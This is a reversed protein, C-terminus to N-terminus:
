HSIWLVNKWFKEIQTSGLKNFPLIIQAGRDICSLKPMQFKTSEWSHLHKIEVKRLIYQKRFKRVSVSEHESLVRPVKLSFDNRTECITRKGVLQEQTKRQFNKLTLMVQPAYRTSNIPFHILFFLCNLKLDIHIIGVPRQSWKVTKKKFQIVNKHLLKCPDLNKVQKTFSNRRRKGELSQIWTIGTAKM